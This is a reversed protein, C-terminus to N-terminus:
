ISNLSNIPNPLSLALKFFLKAFNRNFARRLFLGGFMLSKRTLM